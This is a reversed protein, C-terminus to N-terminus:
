VALGLIRVRVRGQRGSLQGLTALTEPNRRECESLRPSARPRLDATLPMLLSLAAAVHLAKKGM